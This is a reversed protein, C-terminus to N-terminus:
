LKTILNILGLYKFYELQGGLTLKELRGNNLGQWKLTEMTVRWQKDRSVACGFCPASHLIIQKQTMKGKKNFINM